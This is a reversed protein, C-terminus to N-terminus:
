RRSRAMGCGAFRVGRARSDGRNSAGSARAILASRPSRLGAREVRGARAPEVYRAARNGHPSGLRGGLKGDLGGRGLRSRRVQQDAVHNPNKVGVPDLCDDDGRRHGALRDPNVPRRDSQQGDERHEGGQGASPRLHDPVLVARDEEDGTGRSSTTALTTLVQGLSTPRVITARPVSARVIFGSLESTPAIDGM